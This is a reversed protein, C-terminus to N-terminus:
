LGINTRAKVKAKRNLMESELGYRVADITHNDKDPYESKFNGHKDRELEYSSFERAANPCRKPDIIIERIDDSLFRMGHDVSGPGKKAARIKLGHSNFQNITRPEESDATVTFNLPNIAKIKETAKETSLKVEYIEGFIYLKKTKSNYHMKVLALPDKAFGFDLGFKLKDFVEIEEDTITRLELNDFVQGGTGVALGLYEHEYARLNDRKLYKAEEFFAPGLWSPPVGLYNSHHKYTDERQILAEQNVWNNISKPPNYTRFICFTPGGRMLSQEVKRIEEMGNFEDLEEFWVYKFYGKKLKISKAKEAKDLGKFLIKQGTPRYTLQLPTWSEKWLHSVGLAEIGWLVQEYVSTRLTDGVKRYIVANANKDQMMGLPIAVGVFSSKTSGRGGALDYHTHNGKQIDNYVKYFAPAIVKSLRIQM